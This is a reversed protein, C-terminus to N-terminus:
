IQVRYVKTYVICYHMSQELINEKTKSIPLKSRMGKKACTHAGLTNPAGTQGFMHSCEKVRGQSPSTSRPGWLTIGLDLPYFSWLTQSHSWSQSCKRQRVDAARNFKVAQQARQLM